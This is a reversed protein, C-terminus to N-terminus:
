GEKKRIAKHLNPMRLKLDLGEEHEDHRGHGPIPSGGHDPHERHSPQELFSHFAQEGLWRFFLDRGGIRALWQLGSDLATQVDPAAVTRFIAHRWIVKRGRISELGMIVKIGRKTKTSARPDDVAAVKIILHAQKAPVSVLEFGLRDIPQKFRKFIAERDLEGRVLVAVRLRRDESRKLRKAAYPHNKLVEDLWLDLGPDTLDLGVFSSLAREYRIPKPEKDNALFGKRVVVGAIRLDLAQELRKNGAHEARAAKLIELANQPGRQPDLEATLAKKIAPRLIKPLAPDIRPTGPRILGGQATLATLLLLAPSM